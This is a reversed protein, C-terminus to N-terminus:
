NVIMKEALKVKRIKQIYSSKIQRKSRDRPHPPVQKIFKVKEDIAALKRPHIARIYQSRNYLFLMIMM